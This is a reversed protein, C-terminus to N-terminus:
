RADGASESKEAHRDLYDAILMPIIEVRVSRGPTQAPPSPQSDLADRIQEVEERNHVVIEAM